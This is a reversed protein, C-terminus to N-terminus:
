SPVIEESQLSVLRVWGEACLPTQRELAKRPVHHVLVIISEWVLVRRRALRFHLLWQGLIVDGARMVSIQGAM